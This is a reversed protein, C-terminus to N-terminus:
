ISEEYAQSVAEIELAEREKATLRVSDGVSYEVPVDVEAVKSVIAEVEASAEYRPENWGDGGPPEVDAQVRVEYRVYTEADGSETQCIREIDWDFEVHKRRLPRRSTSRM